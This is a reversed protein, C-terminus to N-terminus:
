KAARLAMINPYRFLTVAGSVFPCHPAGFGPTAPSKNFANDVDVGMLIHHRHLFLVTM